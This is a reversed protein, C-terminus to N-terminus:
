LDMGFHLHNMEKKLPQQQQQQQKYVIMHPSANLDVQLDGSPPLLRASVPKPQCKRWGCERGDGSRSALFRAM